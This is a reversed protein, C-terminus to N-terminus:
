KKANLDDTQTRGVIKSMKKLHGNKGGIKMDIWGNKMREDIEVCLIIREDM